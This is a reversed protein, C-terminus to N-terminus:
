LQAHWVGICSRIGVVVYEIFLLVVFCCIHMSSYSVGCAGCEGQYFIHDFARCGKGYDDLASYSAPLRQSFLSHGALYLLQSIQMTFSIM